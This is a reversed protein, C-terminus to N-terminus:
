RERGARALGLRGQGACDVEAGLLLGHTNLGTRVVTCFAVNTNVPLACYAQREALTPRDRGRWTCCQEFTVGWDAMRRQREGQAPSPPATPGAASALAVPEEIYLVGKTCAGARPACVRWVDALASVRLQPCTRARTKGGLPWRQARPAAGQPADSGIAVGRQPLVPHVPHPHPHRAVYCHPRWKACGRAADARSRAPRDPTPRAARGADIRAGGSDHLGCVLQGVGARAHPLLATEPPGPPTRSGQM